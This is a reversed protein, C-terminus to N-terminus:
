GYMEEIEKEFNKLIVDRKYSLKFTLEGTEPTFGRSLLKFKRVQEAPSVDALRQKIREEYLGIVSPHALAQEPTFVPIQRQIIEARLTDPNPVILATLYKRADGVVFAQIILPDETLLAEIYTPAVNKGGATVILEKKRGTIRLFGDDMEGLDGTHLWGDKITEATDEPMNWYGQMVHPGRTLVEGDAAIKVEVGQIPKGVTGVKHHEMTGTSIVPSSETLGYGQVLTIGNKLYFHNVHDALAAGGACCMKMRGGFTAQLAGPKDAVGKEQLTRMVKDFFYPVGNLYHPKVAQCDPIIEERSACLALEGGAAVWLYYDSTRAFIHSLPLWSLRVEGPEVTFALMVANCNSTLNGHSLMVGKPEGTTGSTYLITVLDTSKTQALAAKELAKGDAESKDDVLSSLQRIPQGGIEESCPDFSVYDLGKPLQASAAALKKAQEPGSVVVLKAGSNNIQWAIQPGTLTAHVAVHIGRAMHIALDLIIWEYRNESAQVVRDGPKVGLKVLAAAWKHAQAAVENWTLATFKGDKRYHLAPKSGDADVRRRFMSVITDPADAQMAIGPEFAPGFKFRLPLHPPGAAWLIGGSFVSQYRAQAFAPRKGKGTEGPAM